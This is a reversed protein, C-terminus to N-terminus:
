FLRGLSFVAVSSFADALFAKVQQETLDALDMKNLVLLHPKLGLTEQFLPNRGSLPIRADHVEIICDVLKLSSKM